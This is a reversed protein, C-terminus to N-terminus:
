VSYGSDMTLITGTMLRSADSLLYTATNAVDEPEGIGLLHKSVTIDYQEKPINEILPTNILAPAIGNFRLRPGFEIAASKIISNLAAKSAGYISNGPNGILGAISSIFVFSSNDNTLSRSSCAKILMVSSFLNTTFIDNMQKLSASRLSSMKSIGASHVLGDLKIQNETLLGKIWASIGEVNQLDFPSIIHESQNELRSYVKDLKDMDRGNLILKAGLKSLLIASAEGIGSSAGTILIRRGQIGLPYQM